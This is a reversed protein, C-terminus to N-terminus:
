VSQTELIWFHSSTKCLQPEGFGSRQFLATFEERARERGHLNVMMNIDSLYIVPSPTDPKGLVQEIVLLRNDPAMAAQTNALILLCREDDWDHLILSLVYVDGGPPAVEFFSGAQIDVRDLLGRAEPYRGLIAALLTGNGGGVDVVLNVATFDYANTVAAQRDDPGHQMFLDFLQAEDPHLRLYDFKPM